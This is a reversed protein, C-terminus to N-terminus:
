SPGPNNGHEHDQDKGTEPEPTYSGIRPAAERIHTRLADAVFESLSQRARWAAEEAQKWTGTDQERIYITKDRGTM